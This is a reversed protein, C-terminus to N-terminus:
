VPETTHQTLPQIPLLFLPNQEGPHQESILKGAQHLSQIYMQEYPILLNAKRLPKLLTMLDNM